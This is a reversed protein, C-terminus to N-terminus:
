WPVPMPRLPQMAPRSSRPFLPNKLSRDYGKGPSRAEANSSHTCLGLEPQQLEPLYSGVKRIGSGTRGFLGTQFRQYTGAHKFGLIQLHELLFRIPLTQMGKRLVFPIKLEQLLIDPKHHAGDDIQEVGLDQDQGASKIVTHRLDPVAHINQFAAIRKRIGAGPAGDNRSAFPIIRHSHACGDTRIVVLIGVPRLFDVPCLMLLCLVAPLALNSAAWKGTM